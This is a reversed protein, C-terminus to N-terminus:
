ESKGSRCTGDQRDAVAELHGAASAFVGAVLRLLAPDVGAASDVARAVEVVWHTAKLTADVAIWTEDGTVRCPTERYGRWFQLYHAEMAILASSRAAPTEKLSKIIM